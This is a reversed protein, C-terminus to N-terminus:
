KLKREARIDRFKKKNKSNDKLFQTTHNDKGFVEKTGNFDASLVKYDFGLGSVIAYADIKSNVKVKVTLINEDKIKKIQEKM